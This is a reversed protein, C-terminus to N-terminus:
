LQAVVDIGKKTIQLFTVKEETKTLLEKRLLYSVIAQTERMGLLTRRALTRPSIKGGIAERIMKLVETEERSFRQQELTVEGSLHFRRSAYQQFARKSIELENCNQV